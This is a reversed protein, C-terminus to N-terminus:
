DVFFVVTELINEYGKRQKIPKEVDERYVDVISKFLKEIDAEEPLNLLIAESTNMISLTRAELKAFEEYQMCVLGNKMVQGEMVDGINLDNAMTCQYVADPVVKHLNFAACLYANTRIVDQNKPDTRKFLIEKEDMLYAKIDDEQLSLSRSSEIAVKRIRQIKAELWKIPLVQNKQGSSKGTSEIDMFLYPILDNFVNEKHLFQIYEEGLEEIQHSM